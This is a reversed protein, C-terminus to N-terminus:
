GTFLTDPIDGGRGSDQSSDSSDSSTDEGSSGDQGDSSDDDGSTDEDASSDGATDNDQGSTTNGGTDLGGNTATFSARRIDAALSLDLTGTANVDLYDPNTVMRLGFDVKYDLGVTSGLQFLIRDQYTMTINYLDTVDLRTFSGAADWEDLVSLITAMANQHDDDQAQLRSGPAPDTLVLGTIEMVGDDPAAKEELIKGQYSISFWQSGSSVCAAESAGTVHIELTSPFHRRIQVEQIYPLQQELAQEQEETTLLALNDGVQYGCVELIASEEYVMDGTIEITRVKFLLFVCLFATVAVMCLLTFVLLFRRAAKGLPKKPRSQSPRSRPVPERASPRERSPRRRQSPQQSPRQRPPARRTTERRSSPSARGRRSSSLQLREGEEGHSNIDIFQYGAWPDEQKPKRKM